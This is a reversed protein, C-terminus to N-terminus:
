VTLARFCETNYQGIQSPNFAREGTNPPLYRTIGYPLHHETASFRTEWLSSYLV